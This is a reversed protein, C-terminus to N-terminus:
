RVLFKGAAIKEGDAKLMAIYLGPALSPIDVPSEPQGPPRHARQVESGSSNLIIIEREKHDFIDPYKVTIRGRAPNPYIILENISISPYERASTLLGNSDVKLIYVDYEQFNIAEDYRVAYMLCGGDQTALLGWLHYFADGGYFRQWNVNLNSDLKVLIIWSNDLQWPWQNVVFNSTGGFYINDKTIFDVNNSVGAYNITDGGKGFHQALLLEDDKNLKVIGIDTREPNQFSKHGTLIYTSDNLWCATHQSKLKWAITDFSIFNFASDFEVLEDYSVTTNPYVGHGFVKYGNHESNEIFDMGFQNYDRADINCKISDGNMAFEYFYIDSTQITDMTLANGCIIFHNFTNIIHRLGGLFYGPLICQTLCNIVNLNNDLIFIKLLPNGSDYNSGASGFVYVTDNFVNINLFYMISDKLCFEENLLIEGQENLKLIYPCTQFTQTNTQDGILYYYGYQDQNCDLINQHDTHSILLEFTEQPFIQNLHIFVCLSTLIFTRLIISFM